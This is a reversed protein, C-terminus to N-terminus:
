GVYVAFTGDDEDFTQEHAGYYWEDNVNLRLRMVDVCNVEDLGGEYGSRVVMADKPLTRLAEILQEVTM